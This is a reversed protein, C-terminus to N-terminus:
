VTKGTELSVVIGGLPTELKQLPAQRSLRSKRSSPQEKHEWTFNFIHHLATEQHCALYPVGASLCTSPLLGGVTRQFKNWM